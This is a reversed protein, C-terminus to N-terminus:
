HRRAEDKKEDIFAEISEKRRENKSELNEKEETSIEEAHEDLYDETRRLNALTHDIHEQLHAENDARNDPKAM